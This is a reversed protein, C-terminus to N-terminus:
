SLVNCPNFKHHTTKKIHRIAFANTVTFTPYYLTSKVQKREIYSYVIVYVGICGCYM